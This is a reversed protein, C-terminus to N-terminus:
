QPWPFVREGDLTWLISWGFYQTGSFAGGDMQAWPIGEGEMGPGSFVRGVISPVVSLEERWKLGPFVM